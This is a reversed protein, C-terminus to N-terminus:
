ANEGEVQKAGIPPPKAFTDRIAPLLEDVLHSITLHQPDFGGRRRIDISHVHVLELAPESQFM